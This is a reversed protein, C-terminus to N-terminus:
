EDGLAWKLGTLIGKGHKDLEGYREMRELRHVRDIIARENRVRGMRRRIVM